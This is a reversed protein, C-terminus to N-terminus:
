CFIDKNTAADAIRQWKSKRPEDYLNAMLQLADKSDPNVMVAVICTASAEDFRRLQVLAYAKYLHAAGIEAAFEQGGDNALYEDLLVLAHEPQGHLAYERGLYFRDRTLNETIVSYELVREVGPQTHGVSQWHHLHLVDRPAKMVRGSQVVATHTRGAHKALSRRYLKTVPWAERSEDTGPIHQTFDAAIQDASAMLVRLRPLDWEVREDADIRLVWDHTVHTLMDDYVKRVDNIEEGAKFRPLWGFRNEFARVESEEIRVFEDGRRYVRAGLSTAIEVTRDASGDDAVVIEDAGAASEICAAINAEENLTPIIVSVPPYSM